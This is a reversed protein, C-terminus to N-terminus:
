WWKKNGHMFFYMYCHESELESEKQVGESHSILEGAYECIVEGKEFKREALVGRGKGEVYIM